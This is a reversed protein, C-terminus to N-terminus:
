LANITTQVATAIAWAGVLIATGVVTGFFMKKAEDLKKIDGGATVFKYGSMVIMVVAVTAGIQVAYKAINSIMSSLTSSSGLPNSFLSGTDTGFAVMPLFTAVTVGWYIKKLFNKM